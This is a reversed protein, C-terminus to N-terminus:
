PRERYPAQCDHASYNYEGWGFAAHGYLTAAEFAGAMAGTKAYVSYKGDTTVSMVGMGYTRSFHRYWEARAKWDPDYDGNKIYFSEALLFDGVGLHTYSGLGTQPSWVNAIVKLGLAHAADIARDQRRKSVGWDMGFNDLMVGYVGMRKWRKMSRKIRRMTFDSSMVGADIYGWCAAITHNIIAKTPWHDPHTEDELGAGLVVHAYNDFDEEHGGNIASPWGYYILLSEPRM